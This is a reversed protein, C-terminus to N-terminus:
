VHKSWTEPHAKQHKLWTDLMAVADKRSIKSVYHIRGDPDNYPFSFIMMGWGVPLEEDVMNAIDQLRDKVNEDKSVGGGGEKSDYPAM